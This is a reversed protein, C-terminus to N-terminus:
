NVVDRAAVCAANESPIMSAGNNVEMTMSETTVVIREGSSKRNNLCAYYSDISTTGPEKEKGV